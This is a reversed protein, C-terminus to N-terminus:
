QKTYKSIVKSLINLFRLKKNICINWIWKCLSKFKKLMNKFCNLFLETLKCMHMSFFNLFSSVFGKDKGRLRKDKRKVSFSCRSLFNSILQTLRDNQNDNVGLHTVCCPQLNLGLQKLLLYPLVPLRDQTYERGKVRHSSSIPM